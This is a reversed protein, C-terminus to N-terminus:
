PTADRAAQLPRRGSNLDHRFRWSEQIAAASFKLLRKMVGLSKSSAFM